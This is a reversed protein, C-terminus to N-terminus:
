VRTGEKVYKENKNKEMEIECAQSIYFKCTKKWKAYM